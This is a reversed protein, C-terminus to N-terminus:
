EEQLPDEGYENPGIIGQKFLLYLLFLIYVLSIKASIFMAVTWKGSRGIDHFRRNINAYLFWVGGWLVAILPIYFFFNIKDYTHTSIPEYFFWIVALVVIYAAAARLAFQKRNIRGSFSFYKQYINRV